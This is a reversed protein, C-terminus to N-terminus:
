QDKDKDKFENDHIVKDAVSIKRIRIKMAM